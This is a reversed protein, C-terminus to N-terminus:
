EETAKSYLRFASAPVGWGARAVEWELQALLHHGIGQGRHGEIVHVEVDPGGRSVAARAWGVPAGERHATVVIPPLLRGDGGPPEPPPSFRPDVLRGRNMEVALGGTGIRVARGFAADALPSWVRGPGEELLVVRDARVVATYGALAELGARIREESAGDALTVHPVWPWTLTRELPPRFVSERLARLEGLDGGVALYLVPNVPLFSSVPGLTLEIVPPTTSAARRLLEFAAPLDASRVNVPPVLTIHAVIRDLSPDAVARRLGDIESAVPPDLVVAVGLRRRNSAM